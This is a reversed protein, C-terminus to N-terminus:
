GFGVVVAAAAFSLTDGLVTTKPSALAGYCKRTTNANDFIDLHSVTAAPMNTYNVVGSNSTTRNGSTTATFAMAQAVYSGGTVQTGAAADTSATTGLRAMPAAVTVVYDATGLMADLLKKCEVNDIVAM